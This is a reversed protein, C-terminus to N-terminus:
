HLVIQQSATAIGKKSTVIIRYIYVGSALKESSYKNKGDWEAIITRNGTALVEQKSQYVLKGGNSFVLLEVQLQEGKQNHEFSFKTTNKFPNPYNFLKNIVVGTQTLVIFRLTASNSNNFVDWAKLTLTHKGETLTPLQFLIRGNQYSNTNATYFQNLNIRNNEDGDITAIIDHGIGLGTNNIGSSDFLHAILLPQNNVIGDNKFLTDNLFLHIQPGISDLNKEVNGLCLFNTDVGVADTEGNHAYLKIVIRNASFAVGKPIIISANFSGNQVTVKGQFLINKQETFNTVVSSPDNQLTTTVTPANYVVIDLLGNFSSLKTGNFQKVSGKLTHVKTALLTDNLIVPKLNVSDITITHKPFALRMAPDGLLTFKRNNVIDNFTQYTYNKAALCANGLTLYNGNTNPQLAFRLYNSNIISNSFAFVLRTTTMLAIAGKNKTNLLSAGLSKKTPDDYPAFDCTATIFLPLKFSNQISEIENQTFIAEEALRNYGGHGSYNILLVGSSLQNIINSNVVPYRNGSNTRELPFADLYIKNYDFNKNAASATQVMKEADNLHLNRDGDDAILLIKNRWDGFANESHYQIIKEVINNAEDITNCPIRGVAIDLLNTNQVDNVDDNDDLLAFFDDSTYTNLPHFSENSEYCPVFNTNNSIRNKYDFSAGGMLLLYSPQNSIQQKGRDYYMKVFNRLAVPDKKGSSFENYIAETTVVKVRYQYQKSHFNALETAANLFSPHTIILYDVSDINHLNQNQVKEIFIPTLTNSANFAIYQKFYQTSDNFVLQNNQITVNMKLPQMPNTIELVQTENSASEIVYRVIKKTKLLRADRFHLQQDNTLQLKKRMQLSFWNLWASSTNNAPLFQLQLSSPTSHNFFTDSQQKLRVFPELLNGSVSPLLISQAVTQNFLVRFSSTSNVSRAAVAIQIYIPENLINGVTNISFNRTLLINSFSEGLWQKGSNLINIEDNEYHFLYDYSDVAESTNNQIFPQVSMRKGLGGITLYYFTTDTYLNKTYAYSTNTSDIKWEGAEAGYFLLYDNNNFIGDGGDVVEIANEVLDDVYVGNNAESLMGGGNGYLRISQAAINNGLGNSSLFNPTIKYIGPQTVAIKVWNGTALVSKNTYVRQAHISVHFFTLCILCFKVLIPM